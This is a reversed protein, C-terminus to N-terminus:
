SRLDHFQLLCSINALDYLLFSKVIERHWLHCSPRVVIKLSLLNHLSRNVITPQAYPQLKLLVLEGVQFTRASRKANAALKMKNQARALNQKLLEIFRQWELLVDKATM